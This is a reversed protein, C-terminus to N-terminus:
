QGRASGSFFSFDVDEEERGEEQAEEEYVVEGIVAGGLGLDGGAPGGADADALGGPMGAEELDSFDPPEMFKEAEEDAEADQRVFPVDAAPLFGEEETPNKGDGAKPISEKLAGVEKELRSMHSESSILHIVGARLVFALQMDGKVLMYLDMFVGLMQETRAVTSKGAFEALMRKYEATHGIEEMAMGNKAAASLSLAEMLDKVLLPISKGAREIGEVALLARKADGEQISELIEFVAAEGAVGLAGMVKDCTIEGSEMFQELCTLADRMCGESLKAILRLAAEEAKIGKGSLIERLYATIADMSIQRFVLKMCRSRATVPVKELETTCLIFVVDAPPEELTKLLGNWASGSFMHVEDLIIVKKKLLTVYRTGEILSRVDDIGNHTAADLELVDPAKGEQLARCAPCEGCPEGDEPKECNLARAIIRAVTTKGTGRPGYCLVAQPFDGQRLRALCQWVVAEQGRVESFRRPRIENFLM